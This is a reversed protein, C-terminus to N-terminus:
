KEFYIEILEQLRLLEPTLYSNIDVQKYRELVKLRDNQGSHKRGTFSSGGGATGIHGFGKDSINFNFNYKDNLSLLIDSRYVEDAFWKDYYIPFCPQRYKEYLVQDVYRKWDKCTQNLDWNFSHQKRSALLNRIDRIIVISDDAYFPYFDKRWLDIDRFNIIAYKTDVFDNTIVIDKDKNKPLDSRYWGYGQWGNRQKNVTIRVSPEPAQSLLWHLIATHGSREMSFLNIAHKTEVKYCKM